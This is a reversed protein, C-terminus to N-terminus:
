RSQEFAKRLAPADGPFFLSSIKAPSFILDAAFVMNVICMFNFYVCVFFDIREALSHSFAKLGHFGPFCQFM